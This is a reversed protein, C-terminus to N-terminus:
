LQNYIENSLDNANKDVELWELIKKQISKDYSILSIFQEVVLKEENAFDNDIHSMEYVRQLIHLKETNDLEVFKKEIIKWDPKKKIANKLTMQVEAPLLKSAIDAVSNILVKEEKKLVGDAWATYAISLFLTEIFLGDNM